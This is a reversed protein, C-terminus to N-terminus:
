RGEAQALADELANRTTTPENIGQEKEWSRIFGLAYNCADYMKPAAAILRVNAQLREYHPDDILRFHHVTCIRKAQAYEQFAPDPYTLIEYDLRCGDNYIHWPAPTHASATSRLAKM